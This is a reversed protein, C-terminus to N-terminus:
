KKRFPRDGGQLVCAIRDGASVMSKTFDCFRAVLNLSTAPILVTDGGQCKRLEALGEERSIAFASSVGCFQLSTPPAEASEAHAAATSAMVMAVISLAVRIM